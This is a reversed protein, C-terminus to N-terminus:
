TLRSTELWCRVVMLILLTTYLWLRALMGEAYSSILEAHWAVYTQSENLRMMQVNTRLCAATCFLRRQYTLLGGPM